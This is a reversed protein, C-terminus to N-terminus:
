PCGSIDISHIQRLGEALCRVMDKPNALYEKQTCDRGEIESM